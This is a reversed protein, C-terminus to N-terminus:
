WAASAVYPSVHPKSIYFIFKELKLHLYGHHAIWRIKCGVRIVKILPTLDILFYLHNSILFLPLLKICETWVRIASVLRLWLLALHKILGLLGAEKKEREVELLCSKRGYGLRCSFNCGFGLWFWFHLCRRCVLVFDSGGM